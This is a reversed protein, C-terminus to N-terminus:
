NGILTTYKRFENVPIQLIVDETKVRLLQKFEIENKELIEKAEDLTIRKEATAPYMGLQNIDETPQYYINQVRVNTQINSHIAM